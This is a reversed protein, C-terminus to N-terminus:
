GGTRRWRGWVGAVVVLVLLVGGADVPVSRGRGRVLRCECFGPGDRGVDPGLGEVTVTVPESDYLGDSVVLELVYIGARYVTVGLDSGDDALELDGDEPQEVVSWEFQLSQGADPDSSASADLHITDGTNVLGGGSVRATPRHNARLTMAPDGLLVWSEIVDRESDEDNALLTKSLAFAEGVTVPDPDLLMEWLARDIIVQPEAYALSTTGAFGAAAGDALLVSEGMSRGAGDENPFQFVGNLCNMVVMFGLADTNSLTPVDSTNFIDEDAWLDRAGHGFYNVGVVGQSVAARISVRAQSATPHESSGLYVKQPQIFLPLTGALENEYSSFITEWTETADDAVVLFREEFGGTYDRSEYAIIKDVVRQAEERSEVPLRGLYVDPYLDDGALDAYWNDTATEFFPSDYLRVPVYTRNDRATVGGTARKYDFTGDGMLVIWRPAPDWETVAASLFSKLADPRVRGYGYADYVDRIDVVRTQLGQEARHQALDHAASAFDGHTVILYDAGNNGDLLDAGGPRRLSPSHAGAASAISIRHGVLASDVQVRLDPTQYGDPPPTPDSEVVSAIGPAALLRVPALPDTVDLIVTEDVSSFGTMTYLGSADPEIEVRDGSVKVGHPYDIEVKDVYIADFAAGTDDTPTLVIQNAGPVLLSADFGLTAQELTQGDFELLPTLPTGNLSVEYRHDPNVDNFSSFGWVRLTLSASGSTQPQAVSVELTPVPNLTNVSALFFNDAEGNLLAVNFATRPRDLVAAARAADAPAAATVPASPAVPMRAPASQDFQLWFVDTDSFRTQFRPAYLEIYDDADLTGDSEGRVRIPVPVGDRWAGIRRPDGVQVGAAELDSKRIRQIGPSDVRVQLEGRTGALVDGAPSTESRVAQASSGVELEILAHRHHRLQWGSPDVQVPRFAVVVLTDGQHPIVREVQVPDPPWFTNEVPEYIALDPKAPAEHFTELVPDPVWEPAPVPPDHLRHTQVQSQVLRARVDPHWGRIRLLVPTWPLEPQGPEGATSLGLIHPEVWFQGNSEVRELGLPATSIELQPSSAGEVRHAGPGYVLEVDLEPAPSSTAANGCAAGLLATVALLLRRM